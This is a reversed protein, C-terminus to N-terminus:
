ERERAEWPGQQASEHEGEGGDPDGEDAPRQYIVVLGQQPCDKGHLEHYEVHADLVFVAEDESDAIGHADHEECYWYWGSLGCDDVSSIRRPMETDVAM